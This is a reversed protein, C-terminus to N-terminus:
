PESVHGEPCEETGDSLELKRGCEPCIQGSPRGGDAAKKSESNENQTPSNRVNVGLTEYSMNRELVIGAADPISFVRDGNDNAIEPSRIGQMKDAVKEPPVGHRLSVTALKAITETFGNVFGGSSGINLAMEYPEGNRYGVTVYMKGYGTNIRETTSPIGDPRDLQHDEGNLIHEVIEADQGELEFENIVEEPTM